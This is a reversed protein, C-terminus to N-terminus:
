SSQGPGIRPTERQQALLREAFDVREELEVVHQKVQELEAVRSQLDEILQDREALDLGRARDRPSPFRSAVVRLAVIGAVIFTIIAGIGLVPGVIEMPLALAM